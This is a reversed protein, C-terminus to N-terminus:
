LLPASIEHYHCRYYSSGYAKWHKKLALFLAKFDISADEEEWQANDQQRNEENM